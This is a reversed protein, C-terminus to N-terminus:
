SMKRLAEVPTLKSARYAPYLASVLIVIYFVCGLIILELWPLVFKYNGGTWSGFALYASIIGIVIGLLIAIIGTYSPELLFTKLVMRRNFGLARLVGIEYKREVINRATVVGLGIMGILLGLGLFAQFLIMFSREYAQNEHILEGIAQADMGYLALEQELDAAVHEPSSTIDPKIKFLAYRYEATSPYLLDLNEESMVFTGGFVSNELVGIVELNIEEGSESEVTYITGFSGQYIWILTNYDVVIPVRGHNENPPKQLDLWIDRSSIDPGSPEMFSFKNEGIFESSVGLLRPPYRVNMNSCTGGPPGVMKIETVTVNDLVPAHINNNDLQTSNDLDISIPVATEGIIDYGGRQEVSVVNISEEQIAINISLTTILFTILTFIAIIQATRSPHRSPNQLAYSAVPAPKRGFGFIRILTKSLTKINVITLIIVSLILMLGSMFFLEVIPAGSQPFSRLAFIIIYIVAALSFISIAAQRIKQQETSYGAVFGIGLLMLIPAFLTLYYESNEMAAVTENFNLSLLIVGIVLFFLGVGLMRRKKTRKPVPLSQIASIINLKAIHRATFYITILTLIFGALFSILLTIPKFYFPVTYGEVASAWISNLSTVMVWGLLLGFIVGIIGAIFSYVTGELMFLKVVQNKRLGMARGLGLEYKRSDGLILFITVILAMGAIIIASGFTLFMMPFISMGSATELSDSKVPDNSLGADSHGLTNNLYQGINVKLGGLDSTARSNRSSNTNEALKIMTLSGLNTGWITQATTLSIYGKPAGGYTNWYDQDSKSIRDLDIVFPPDWDTCSQKDHLGPFAPMLNRDTAIGTLSIIFKVNFESTTNYLNYLRDLAMYEISITDGAIVGLKDAAWDILMIEDDALTIDTAPGTYGSESSVISFEGFTSDKEFDIGTIMSYNVTKETRNLSITNVFYTFVPSSIIGTGSSTEKPYNEALDYIEEGFFIDDNEIRLYESGDINLKIGLEEYGITNDLCDNIIDVAEEEHDIGSYKDGKISLFINNIKNEIELINQIAELNMFINATDHSRGDLQLRGLDSNAVIHKVTLTRVKTNKGERTSYVSDLAFQPNNIILKLKQGDSIDLKGALYENIIVENNQLQLADNTLKNNSKYDRFHGFTLFQDTIGFLQAKNERLNNEVAEVASPLLIIPAHADIIDQVNSNQALAVYYGNDFYEGASIVLDVEGLNDFTSSYVLYEMSDGVVLSGTIVATSIMLGLVILGSQSKRRSFEQMALKALFGRL